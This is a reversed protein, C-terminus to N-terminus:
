SNMSEVIDHNAWVYVVSNLGVLDDELKAATDALVGQRPPLEDLLIADRHGLQGDPSRPAKDVALPIRM